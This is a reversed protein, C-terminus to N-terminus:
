YIFSSASPEDAAPTALMGDARAAGSQVSFRGIWCTERERGSRRRRGTRRAIGSERALGRGKERPLTRGGALTTVGSSAEARVSVFPVLKPYKERDGIADREASVSSDTVSQGSVLSVPALVLAIASGSRPRADLASSVFRIARRSAPAFGSSFVRRVSRAPRPVRHFGRPSPVLPAGGLAPRVSPAAFRPLLLPSLLSSLLLLSSFCCFTGVPSAHTRGVGGAPPGAEGERRWLHWHAGDVREANLARTWRSLRIILYAGVSLLAGDGGARLSSCLVSTVNLFDRLPSVCRGGSQAM